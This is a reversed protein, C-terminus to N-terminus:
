KEGPTFTPISVGSDHQPMPPPVLSQQMMEDQNPTPNKSSDDLAAYGSDQHQLFHGPPAYHQQQQQHLHHHQQQHHQFPDFTHQAHLMHPNFHGFQMPDTAHLTHMSQPLSLPTNLGLAGPTHLDGATNHWLTNFGGPTPTYYGPPQNAFASFAFSNPDMLSPTLRWHDAFNKPTNGMDHKVDDVDFVPRDFYNDTNTFLNDRQPSSTPETAMAYDNNLSSSACTSPGTLYVYRHADVPDVIAESITTSGLQTTVPVNAGHGASGTTGPGVNPFREKFAAYLDEDPKQSSRRNAFM